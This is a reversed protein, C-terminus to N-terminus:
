KTITISLSKSASLLIKELSNITLGVRAIGGTTAPQINLKQKTPTTVPNNNVRWNFELDSSSINKPSFFYPEAVLSVERNLSLDNLAKQYVVGEEMDEYFIIKPEMMTLSTGGQGLEGAQGRIAVAVNEKKNLMSNKFVFFSKKFGFGSQEVNGGRSWEYSLQNPTTKRGAILVNPIAVVKIESETSPLAKGRYFPPTYSDIVEFLLDVGAPIIIVRKATAAGRSSVIIDVATSEGSDKAKLKLVREGVGRLEEKGDVLWTISAQDIDFIFSDLTITVNEFPAPTEPYISVEFGGGLQASAIKIIFLFSFLIFVFYKM